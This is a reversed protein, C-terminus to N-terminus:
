SQGIDAFDTPKVSFEVTYRLGEPRWDFATVGRHQHRIMDRLLLTGFGQRTPAAAPPGGAEEWTLRVRAEDQEGREAEEIVVAVKGEAASLAGHKLSNTTLEHLILSVAQSEMPPLKRDTSAISVRGGVDFISLTSAALEDLSAGTWDSRVLLTHAASLAAIRSEANAVFEGIDTAGRASTKLMSSIVALMNKVRHNLERVLLEAREAALREETVDRNIGIVRATKGDPGPQAQGIGHLIIESGDPRGVAFTAEYPGVEDIAKQLREEVRARHDEHIAGIPMDLFVPAPLEPLGFFRRAQADVSVEDEGVVVEWVGLRAAQLALSLRQRERELAAETKKLATVEPFSLVVGDTSGGEHSVYPTVAMIYTREGDTSVVERSVAEGHKLVRAADEMVAADRIKATFEGLGRGVDSTRLPFIEAARPTFIRVQLDSGLIVTPINSSALFNRLDANAGAVEDMKLKLEDNVTSLEENASQLEENVSMMEENSSKLEENAAELDEVTTRLRMKVSRLESEVDSEGDGFPEIADHDEARLAAVDRIVILRTEDALRECAIDVTQVGLESAVEVETAAARVEGADLRRMLRRLPARLGARSLTLVDSTQEGPPIELYKTLRGSAHLLTGNQGVVVFAPAYRELVRKEAASAAPPPAETRRPLPDARERLASGGDAMRPMRPTEGVGRYLRAKKDIAEFLGAHQGIGESTGLVLVGNRKLAYHFVPLVRSQLDNGFYILLNRCSILDLRTFPPAKIVSPASFRVMDRIPPAIAFGGETPVTYRSRFATPIAAIADAPYRAERAAKLMQEDIDSAFIVVPAADRGSDRQADDILMALSYAEEGSSCGPVWVRIAQDPEAQDIMKPIVDRRLRDFVAEDRFFSTVNILLETLLAEAEGPDARLRRLYAEPSRSGTIQVRRRTRRILTAPKYHAFDHGTAARLTQLLDPLIETVDRELGQRQTLGEFYANIQEAIKPPPLVYDAFGTEIAARPMGDFKATAPDQVLTIGDAEKVRRFARAGDTGTGSLVVCALARPLDDTLSSFFTDIPRRVGRPLPFDQLKLRGKEITMSAGPPIMYVTDARPEVGDEAQRVTMDTRRSLLEAMLSDHDPDLHQIVVYAAGHGTPAAAFLAQLAELGGASAGIAVIPCLAGGGPDTEDADDTGNTM